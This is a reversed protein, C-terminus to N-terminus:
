LDWAWPTKDMVASSISGTATGSISEHFGGSQLTQVCTLICGGVRKAMLHPAFAIGLPYKITTGAFCAKTVALVESWGMDAWADQGGKGKLARPM